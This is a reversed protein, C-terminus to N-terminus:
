LITGDSLETLFPSFQFKFTSFVRPSLGGCKPCWHFDPIGGERWLVDFREGCNSCVFEYVPM